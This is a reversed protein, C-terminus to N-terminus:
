QIHKSQIKLKLQHNSGISYGYWPICTNEVCKTRFNGENKCASKNIQVDFVCAYRSIAIRNATTMFQLQFNLILVYLLNLNIHIQSILIEHDPNSKTSARITTLSKNSCQLNYIICSINQILISSLTQVFIIHYDWLM